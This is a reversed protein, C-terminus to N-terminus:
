ATMISDEDHPQHGQLRDRRQATQGDSGCHRSGRANALHRADALDPRRCRCWWATDTGRLSHAPQLCAPAITVARSVKLAPAPTSATCCPLLRGDDVVRGRDRRPCPVGGSCPRSRRAQPSSVLATQQQQLQRQALPCHEAASALKDGGDVAPSLTASEIHLTSTAGSADNSRVSTM